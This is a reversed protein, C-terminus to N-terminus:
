VRNRFVLPVKAPTVTLGQKSALLKERRQLMTLGEYADPDKLEIKYKHVLMSLVVVAENETFRRGLCARSGASFPFFADKNYPGLFRSPNFEEPSDWYRPNYHIGFINLNVVTGKLVPLTGISGDPKVLRLNTDKSACKPISAVPPFLRLTEYFIALPYTLANMIEHSPISGDAPFLSTVQQYLKEQEDQYLALLGLACCLTHATTEHGAFLFIFIDGILQRDTLRDELSDNENGELLVTFLDHHQEDLSDRRDQIMEKMYLEFEYFAAQIRLLRRSFPYVWNPTAIRIVLKSAVQHVADNFSMTHGPPIDSDEEWSIRRGFGAAGIVMLAIPLTLDLAHEVTMSTKKDWMSTSLMDSVIRSTEEWVLRNNRESFAPAAIKRHRKWEEGETMIINSGFMGLISYIDIPKPFKFHHTSIDKLSVADAVILETKPVPFFSTFTLVDWGAKKFPQHKRSLAWDNGFTILPIRPLINSLTGTIDMLRIFGPHHRLSVFSRQSRFFIVVSVLMIALMAFFTTQVATEMIPKHKSIFALTKSFFFM